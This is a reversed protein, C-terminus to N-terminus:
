KNLDYNTLLDIENKKILNQIAENMSKINKDLLNIDVFDLKEEGVNSKNEEKNITTPRKNKYYNIYKKQENILKECNKNLGLLKKNLGNKFNKKYREKEDTIYTKEALNEYVSDANNIIKFKLDKLIEINHPLIKFIHKYFERLSEKTNKINEEIEEEFIKDMIQESLRFCKFAYCGSDSLTQDYNIIVCNPFNRQFEIFSKLRSQTLLEQQEDSFFFGVRIEPINNMQSFLSSYSDLSDALCCPVLNTVIIKNDAERGYLLGETKKAFTASNRYFALLKNIINNPIEINTIQPYKPLRSVKSEPNPDSSDPNQSM